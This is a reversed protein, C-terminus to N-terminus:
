RHKFSIYIFEYVSKKLDPKKQKVYKHAMWKKANMRMTTSYQLIYHPYVVVEKTGCNISM